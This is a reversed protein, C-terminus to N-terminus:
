LNNHKEYSEDYRKLGWVLDPNYTAYNRNVLNEVSKISHLGTGPVSKTGVPEFDIFIFLDPKFSPLDKISAGSIAKVGLYVHAKRSQTILGVELPLSYKQFYWNLLYALVSTPLKCDINQLEKEKIQTAIHSFPYKRLIISQNAVSDVGEGRHKIPLKSGVLSAINILLEDLTEFDNPQPLETNSIFNEVFIRINNGAEFYEFIEDDFEVQLDPNWSSQPNQHIEQM